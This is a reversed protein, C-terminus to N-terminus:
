GDDWCVLEHMEVSEYSKPWCSCVQAEENVKSVQRPETLSKIEWVSIWKSLVIVKSSELSQPFNASPAVNLGLFPM